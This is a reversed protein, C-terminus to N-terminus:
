DKQRKRGSKSPANRVGQPKIIEIKNREDYSLREKPEYKKKIRGPRFAM